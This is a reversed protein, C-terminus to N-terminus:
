DNDPGDSCEGPEDGEVEVDCASLVFLLGLGLLSLLLSRNM